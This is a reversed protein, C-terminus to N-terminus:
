NEEDAYFIEITAGSRPDIEYLTCGARRRAARKSLRKGRRPLRLCHFFNV